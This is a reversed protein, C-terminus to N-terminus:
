YIQEEDEGKSMRSLIILAKDHPLLFYDSFQDDGKANKDKLM